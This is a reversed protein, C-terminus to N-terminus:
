PASEFQLPLAVTLRAAPPAVSRLADSKQPTLKSGTTRLYGSVPASRLAALPRLAALQANLPRALTARGSRHAKDNASGLCGDIRHPVSPDEIDRADIGEHVLFDEPRPQTIENVRASYACFWPAWGRAGAMEVSIKTAPALTGRLVTKTEDATVWKERSEPMKKVRIKSGAAPNAPIDRQDFAFQLTAKLASLYANRIAIKAPRKAL